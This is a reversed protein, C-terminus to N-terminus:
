LECFTKLYNIKSEPHMICIKPSQPFDKPLLSEPIYLTNKTRTIAVYLLNIEEILKLPQINKSKTFRVISEESIFDNILFVSDYEMGKSRHVTSFLLDAEEKKDAPVLRAKLKKMVQYINGGYKKVLEIMMKLQMEETEEAYEELNEINELSRIIPDKIQALKGQYLNLVDYLSAGEEAYTYAHISGEFYIMGSMDPDHIYQIAALLLGLNTRGLVVKKQSLNSEGKGYITPSIQDGLHNKWKLTESALNAIDTNFRFSTSLPLTDFEINELANVAYRWSYIQQHVDGTMVKVASQKLFLDIMAPSADQGEDFFIMDYGLEPALLQFKKLYFDHTIAIERQNMKKLLDRTAGIITDYHHSVVSKAQPDSVQSLYDLESYAGANSNCYYGLLKNIHNALVYRQRLPLMPNLKALHAIESTKYSGEKLLFGGRRVIYKYALSHTTEVDVNQVGEVRFRNIAEQRVRRNFALYLIKNTRPRSKAYAIITTTKGSGAVANIKLDGKSEIIQAQEETLKM